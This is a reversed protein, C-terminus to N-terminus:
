GPKVNACFMKHEKECGRTAKFSLSANGNNIAAQARVMTKCLANKILSDHKELCEYMRGAGPVVDGCLADIDNGCVQWMGPKARIDASERKLLDRASALCLPNGINEVHDTICNM